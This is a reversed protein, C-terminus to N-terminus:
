GVTEAGFREALFLGNLMLADADDAVAADRM